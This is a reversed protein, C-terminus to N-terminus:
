FLIRSVVANNRRCMQATLKMSDLESNTVDANYITKVSKQGQCTGGHTDDKGKSKGTIQISKASNKIKSQEFFAEAM